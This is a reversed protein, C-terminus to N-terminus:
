GWAKVLLNWKANTLANGLGTTADLAVLTTANTGFRITINTVDVKATLGYNNALTTSIPPLIHIIEGAAYNYEPNVCVAFCHLMKPVRTLGHALVLQGGATITQADSEYIASFGLAALIAAVQPARTNDTGTRLEATTALEVIGPVIESAAPEDGTNTGSLNTASIAGTFVQGSIAAKENDLENIAAQVDTAAVTGSPTNAIVSAPHVTTAPSVPTSSHVHDNVENLWTAPVPTVYDTFTTDAM